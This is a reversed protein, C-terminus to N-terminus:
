KAPVLKYLKAIEEPSLSRNYVRLEDMVGNFVSKPDYNSGIEISKGIGLPMELNPDSKVGYSIEKGNIFIRVSGDEYTTAFHYWENAKYPIGNPSRVTTSKKDESWIWMRIQNWATVSCYITNSNWAGGGRISYLSFPAKKGSWNVYRKVWMAITGEELLTNKGSYGLRAADKLEVGKGFKGEVFTLNKKIIPKADSIAFKAVADGDLPAYFALGDKKPKGLGAQEAKAVEDETAKTFTVDDYWVTGTDSKDLSGAALVIGVKDTGKSLNNVIITCKKWKETLSIPEISAGLYKEKGDVTGSMMAGARATKEKDSKAWFNLIYPGKDSLKLFQIVYPSHDTWTDATKLSQKGGHFISTDYSVITKVSEKSINGWTGWCGWAGGDEFGPDKLLNEANVAICTLAIGFGVLMKGTMKKM